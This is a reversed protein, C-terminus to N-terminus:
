LRCTWRRCRFTFLRLRCCSFPYLTAKRFLRFYDKQFLIERRSNIDKPEPCVLRADCTWDIVMEKIWNAAKARKEGKMRRFFKKSFHSNSFFFNIKIKQWLVVDSVPDNEGRRWAVSKQQCLTLISQWNSKDRQIKFLQPIWNMFIEDLM